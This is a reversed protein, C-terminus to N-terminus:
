DFRSSSSPDVLSLEWPSLPLETTIRLQIFFATKSSSTKFYRKYFCMLHEFALQCVSESCLFHRLYSDLYNHIELHFSYTCSIM